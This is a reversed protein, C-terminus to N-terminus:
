KKVPQPNISTKETLSSAPVIVIPMIVPMMGNNHLLEPQQKYLRNINDIMEQMIKQTTQQLAQQRMQMERVMDQTQKDMTVNPPNGIQIKYVQPEKGSKVVKQTFSFSTSGGNSIDSSKVWGVNGNRPDGIKIWDSGKPTYIPIIGTSIDITGVVKSGATPQDYLNIDNALSATSLSFASLTALFAAMVKLNFITKM